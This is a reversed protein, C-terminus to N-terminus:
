RRPSVTSRQRESSRHVAAARQAIDAFVEDTTMPRRRAVLPRNPRGRRPPPALLRRRCDDLDEPSVLPAVDYVSTNVSLTNAVVYRSGQMLARRVSTATM